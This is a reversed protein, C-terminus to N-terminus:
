DKTCKIVDVYKVSLDGVSGTLSCTISHTHSGGTWSPLGYGSNLLNGVTSVRLTTPNTPPVTAVSRPTFPTTGFAGFFRAATPTGVPHNHLPLNAVTLTTAGLDPVPFPASTFGVSTFATTVEVSGGSSATGNVVRLASNNFNATDKTWGVPASTQNFFTVTGSAFIPM